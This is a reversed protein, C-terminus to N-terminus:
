RKVENEVKPQSILLIWLLIYKYNLLDYRFYCAPTSPVANTSSPLPLLYSVRPHTVSSIQCRVVIGVHSHNCEVTRVMNLILPSPVPSPKWMGVTYQVFYSWSTLSSPWEQGEYTHFRRNCDSGVTLALYKAIPSFSQSNKITPM